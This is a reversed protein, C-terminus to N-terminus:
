VGIHKTKGHYVLNKALAIAGHSDCFLISKSMLEKEDNSTPCESKRLKVHMSLPSSLPKAIALNFGRSHKPYLCALFTNQM